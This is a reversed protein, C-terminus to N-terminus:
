SRGNFSGRSTVSKVLDVMFDLLGRWQKEGSEVAENHTKLVLAKIEEDEFLKAHYRNIIDGDLQMVTQAYIIDINGKTPDSSDRAGKLEIIKRLSRLFQNNELLRQIESWDKITTPNPLIPGGLENVYNPDSEVIRKKYKKVWNIRVEYRKVRQDDLNKLESGSGILIYFYERELKEFLSYYREHLSEPIHAEKFYSPDNISYIEQYAGWANFKEGTIEAVIMTNVELATIDNLLDGISDVFKDLLNQAKHAM